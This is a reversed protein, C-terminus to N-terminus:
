QDGASVLYIAVGLTTWPAAGVHEIDGKYVVNQNVLRLVAGDGETLGVCSLLLESM